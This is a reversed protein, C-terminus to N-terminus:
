RVKLPTTMTLRVSTTTPFRLCVISCNSFPDTFLTVAAVAMFLVLELDWAMKVNYRSPVLDSFNLILKHCWWNKWILFEFNSPNRGRFNQFQIDRFLHLIIQGFKKKNENNKILSLYDKLASIRWIKSDTIQFSLPKM